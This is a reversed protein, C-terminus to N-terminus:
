STPGPTPRNLNNIRLGVVTNSKKLYILKSNQNSFYLYGVLIHSSFRTRAPTSHFCASVHIHRVSFADYISSTTLTRTMIPWIAIGCLSQVGRGGSSTPNGSKYQFLISDQIKKSKEVIIKTNM